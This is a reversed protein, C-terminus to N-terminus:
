PTRWKRWTPAGEHLEVVRHAIWAADAAAVPVGSTQLVILGEPSPDPLDRPMLCMGIQTDDIPLAAAPVGAALFVANCHQAIAAVTMM